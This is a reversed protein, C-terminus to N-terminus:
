REGDPELVISEHTSLGALDLTRRVRDRVGRIRLVRGREKLRWAAAVLTAIGISDIFSCARLDITVGNDHAIARDLDRRLRPASAMDIEGFVTVEVGGGPRDAVHVAFDPEEAPDTDM